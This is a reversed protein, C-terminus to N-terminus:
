EGLVVLLEHLVAVRDPYRNAYSQSIEQRHEPLELAALTAANEKLGPFRIEGALWNDIPENRARHAAVSRRADALAQVALATSLSDHMGARLFAVIAQSRHEDPELHRRSSDPM